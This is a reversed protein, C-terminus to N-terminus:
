NGDCHCAVLDNDKEECGREVILGTSSSVSVPRCGLGAEALKIGLFRRIGLAPAVM